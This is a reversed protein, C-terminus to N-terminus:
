VGLLLSIEDISNDLQRRIKGITTNYKQALEKLTYKYLLRDLILDNNSIDKIFLYFDDKATEQNLIHNELNIKNNRKLELLCEWYVLNYLWTTFKMKSEQKYTKLCKWMGVMKCSNLEEKDLYYIFKKTAKKMILKNDINNYASNFEDNSIIKNM